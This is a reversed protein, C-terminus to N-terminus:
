SEAKVKYIYKRPDTIVGKIASAAVTAPSALYIFSLPNGMRGKFNRNATSIVVEGDAPVGQHTGVCAGCGPPLILGGAELIIKIIGKELAQLLVRQSAPAVFFKVDPHVKRGKLIRAAIELDQVRGNTCTGLFAQNIKTGEVEEVPAGNDVTHPKAVYPPLKSVDFEIVREYKCNKDALAAKYKKVGIRSLYSFTRADPAILGCKAGFEITMNTITFLADISLKDLVKGEFEVAKYTAGAAGLKHIISLIVDKSFVGSPLKGRVIIKYTAPVKFWNKGTTLTVALDTSGMGFAAAGLAGATSTHSDAGLILAGPYAFGEEVVLQHSIGCGVDFILNKYKRAFARMQSHVRSVGVNPSPSSHDIFMAYNQPSKLPAKLQSVGNLVLSTTGDQSFCFDVKCIGVDNAYLRKSAHSSLIKEIITQGSM